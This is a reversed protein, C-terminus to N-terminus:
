GGHGQAALPGAPPSIPLPAPEQAPPTSAAYRSRDFLVRQTYLRTEEYPILAVFEREDTPAFAALWQAVRDEGANYSAVVAADTGLLGRLRALYAAGLRLNTAPDVLEEEPPLVEGPLALKVLTEPMIQMLGVAGTPSLADPNFDSERRTIAYLLEEPVATRDVGALFERYPRPYFVEAVTPPLEDLREPDGFDARCLSYARGTEGSVALLRAFRLRVAPDRRARQFCPEYAEAAYAALGANQLTEALRSELSTDPAPEPPLPPAVRPPLPVGRAALTQRAAAAWYGGSLALSEWGARALYPQGAEELWLAM